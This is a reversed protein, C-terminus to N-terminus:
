FYHKKLRALAQWNALNTGGSTSCGNGWSIVVELSLGDNCWDCSGAEEYSKVGGGEGVGTM